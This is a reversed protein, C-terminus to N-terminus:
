HASSYPTWGTGTWQLTASAELIPVQAPHLKAFHEADVVYHEADPTKGKQSEILELTPSSAQVTAVAASGILAQFLTRRNLM